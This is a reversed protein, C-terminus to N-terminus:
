HTFLPPFPLLNMGLAIPLLVLVIAILSLIIIQAVLGIWVVKPHKALHTVDRLKFELGLDFMLILLIPLVILVPNM